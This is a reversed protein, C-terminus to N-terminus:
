LEYADFHVSSISVDPLLANKKSPRNLRITYVGDKNTIVMTEASQAPPATGVSPDMQPSKGEFPAVLQGVLQSYEKAADEQPFRLSSLLYSCTSSHSAVQWKYSCCCLVLHTSPVYM